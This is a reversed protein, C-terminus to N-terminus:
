LISLIPNTDPDGIGSFSLGEMEVQEEAAATVEEQLAECSSLSQVEEQLTKTALRIGGGGFARGGM